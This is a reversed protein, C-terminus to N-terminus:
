SGTAATKVGVRELAYTVSFVVGCAESKLKKLPPSHFYSMLVCVTFFLILHKKKEKERGIM